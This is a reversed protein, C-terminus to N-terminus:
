VLSRMTLLDLTFLYAAFVCIKAAFLIHYTISLKNLMKICNTIM